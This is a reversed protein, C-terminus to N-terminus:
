KAGRGSVFDGGAPSHGCRRQKLFQLLPDEGQEQGQLARLRRRRRLELEALARIALQRRRAQAQVEDALQRLEELEAETPPTM